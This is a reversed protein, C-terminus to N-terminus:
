TRRASGSEIRRALAAARSAVVVLYVTEFLCFGGCFDVSEGAPDNLVPRTDALNVHPNVSLLPLLWGFLHAIFM